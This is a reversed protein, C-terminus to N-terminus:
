RRKKKPTLASIDQYAQGHLIRYITMQSVGLRRAVETQNRCGPKMDRKIRAVAEPSLKRQSGPQSWRLNDSIIKFGCRLYWSDIRAPVFKPIKGPRVPLPNTKSKRLKRITAPCLGLFESLQKPTMLKDGYIEVATKRPPSHVFPAAPITPESKFPVQQPEEATKMVPPHIRYMQKGWSLDVVSVRDEPLLPMTHRLTKTTLGPHGFQEALLNALEYDRGEWPDVTSEAFLARDIFALLEPAFQVYRLDAAM